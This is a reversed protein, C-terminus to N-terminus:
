RRRGWGAVTLPMLISVTPDVLAECAEDFEAASVAGEALVPARFKELTLRLFDAAPPSGGRVVSARAEAAVDDLEAAVLDTLVRRGYECEVPCISELYRIVRVMVRRLAPPEATEFITVFDPEEVLLV